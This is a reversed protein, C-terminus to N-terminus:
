TAPVFQLFENRVRIIDEIRRTITDQDVLRGELRIVVQRSRLTLTGTSQEITETFSDTEGDLHLVTFETIDVLRPDTVDEWQSGSCNAPPAEVGTWMQITGVGGTTDLRFGGGGVDAPDDDPEWSERQLFYVLCTEGSFGPTGLDNIPNVRVTTDDVGCDANAYCYLALPSYNARRVDRTLMSMTNRLEDTLQSMHIIRTASGLSNGMLVVMSTTVVASLALAVMLEMLSAGTSKARRPGNALRTM